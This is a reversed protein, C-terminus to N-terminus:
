FLPHSPPKAAIIAVTNLIKSTLRIEPPKMDLDHKLFLNPSHRLAGLAKKVCITDISLTKEAFFKPVPLPLWAVAAYDTAAHVTATMLIKFLKPPIGWRTNSLSTLFNARKRGKALVNDRHRRFTLRSDITVGLWKTEAVPTLGKRDGFNITGKPPSSSPKLVMWKSKQSDFIAGHKSAWAIQENALAQVKMSLEHHNVAATILVVEDVFGLSTSLKHTDSICLFSNNYLLYLLPSLPSGQPLGHTLPFNKSNFGNFSLYTLRQSLFSSIFNTLQPPFGQMELTHLMQPHHVLPFASKVDAFIAGVMRGARGQAKVWSVLHVLAEQSSRNPRAGYHGAHLIQNSEAVQSMYSALAKEYIKALTNLLAIPRYSGLQTYDDKGPKALMATRAVKWRLPIFGMSTIASFLAIVHDTVVDWALAWVWNQIRDPGPSKLPHTNNITEM